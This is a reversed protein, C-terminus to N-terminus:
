VRELESLSERGGELDDWSESVRKLEGM